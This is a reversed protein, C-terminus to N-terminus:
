VSPIRSITAHCNYKTHRGEAKKKKLLTSQSTLPEATGSSIDGAPDRKKVAGQM